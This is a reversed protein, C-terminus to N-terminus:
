KEKPVDVGMKRYRARANELRDQFADALAVVRVTVGAVKGAELVNSLAGSGRGGCGILGVNITFKSQAQGTVSPFTVAAAAGAAAMTSKQLFQRRTVNTM